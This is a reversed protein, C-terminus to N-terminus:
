LREGVYAAYKEMLERHRYKSLPIKRGNTLEVEDVGIRRIYQMNVLFSKHCRFFGMRFLRDEIEQLPIPLNQTHDCLVLTSMHRMVEVYVLEKCDVTVAGSGLPFTVFSGRQADLLAFAETMHRRFASYLVPKRLFAFAHVEYGELAFQVNSTVFIIPLREHTRRLIRATEIGTMGDMQIDLLLLQLGEPFNTLLEEGSSFYFIEFNDSTQQELERLYLSIQELETTDDDCVAIRRKM